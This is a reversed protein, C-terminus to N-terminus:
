SPVEIDQFFGEATWNHFWKRVDATLKELSAGSAEVGRGLAYGASNEGMLCELVVYQARTLTYRRVVYSRRTVALYTARPRPFVAERKKRVAAVYTHVPFRLRLLRLCPVPVMHADPWREPAIKALRGADLLPKGEVGPGDFVQGYTMELTALDILFDPWSPGTKKKASPRGAGTEANADGPRTEALYAPFRTGLDNLTYSRSPYKHLYDVAFEAFAEDGVAHIFAPFEERLCELLRAFYARNYIELRELGTLARSRAVVSEVDESTVDIIRRAEESSVGASAGGMNMIVTQVWHQIQELDRM